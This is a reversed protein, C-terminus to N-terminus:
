IRVVTQVGEVFTNNYIDMMSVTEQPKSPRFICHQRGVNFRKMWEEQGLKVDPYVTRVKVGTLPEVRERSTPENFLGILKLLVVKVTKM